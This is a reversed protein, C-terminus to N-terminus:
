YGSAFTQGRPLNRALKVVSQIHIDSNRIGGYRYAEYKRLANEVDQWDAKMELKKLRYIAEKWTFGEPLDPFSTSLCDELLAFADEINRVDRINRRRIRTLGLILFFYIVANLLILGATETDIAM